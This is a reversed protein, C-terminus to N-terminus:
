FSGQDILVIDRLWETRMEEILRDKEQYREVLWKALGEDELPLDELMYRRVHVHFDFDEGVVTSHVQYITPAVQIENTSHHRYVLTLDYIVKIHSHYRLGQM